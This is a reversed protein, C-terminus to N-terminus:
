CCVKTSVISSGNEEIPLELATEPKCTLEVWLASDNVVNAM